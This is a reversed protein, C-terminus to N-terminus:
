FPIIYNPYGNFPFTLILMNMVSSKYQCLLKGAKIISIRQKWNMKYSQHRFHFVIIILVQSFVPPIDSCRVSCRRLVSHTGVTSACSWRTILTYFYSLSCKFASSNGCHLCIIVQHYSILTHFHSLSRKFATFACSLRTFAFSHFHFTSHLLTGCHQHM